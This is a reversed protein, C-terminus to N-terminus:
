TVAKALKQNIKEGNRKSFIFMICIYEYKKGHRVFVTAYSLCWDAGQKKM